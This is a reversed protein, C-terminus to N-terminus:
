LKTLNFGFILTTGKNISSKVKYSGNLFQTRILMNNLGLGQKQKETEFGKGDDSVKLVIYNETIKLDVTIQKADAHKLINSIAEQFIRFIQLKPEVTIEDSSKNSVNFEIKYKSQLPHLFGSILEKLDTEELMPPTLDHSIKRALKISDSLLEGSTKVHEKDGTSLLLVITNLKSILGDHLESAIRKREREQTIVSKELLEKQHKVSMDMQQNQEHILRKFYLRMFIVIFVSLAVFVLFVIALGIAFFEPNKWTEM